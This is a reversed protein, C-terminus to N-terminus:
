REPRVLRGRKASPYSGGAFITEGRLTTRRVVGHFTEGAYPSIRHRHAMEEACLTFSAGLDLFALDADNGACISGKRPIRFRRAPADALLGAIRALAMGRDFHGRDLLVSLTSQVGAIGGWARAFECIKM